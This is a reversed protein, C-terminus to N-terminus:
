VEPLGQQASGAEAGGDERFRQIATLSEAPMLLRVARPKALPRVVEDPEAEPRFLAQFPDGRGGSGGGGSSRECGIEPGVAVEGCEGIGQRPSAIRMERLAELFKLAQMDEPLRKTFGEKAEQAARGLLDALDFLHQGKECLAMAGRLWRFDGGPRLEASCAGSVRQWSPRGEGNDGFGGQAGALEAEASTINGLGGLKQRRVGAPEFRGLNHRVGVSFSPEARKRADTFFNGIADEEEPGALECCKGDIRPNELGERAAVPEVTPFWSLDGLKATGVEPWEGPERLLIKESPFAAGGAPLVRPVERAAM